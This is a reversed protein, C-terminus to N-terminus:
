GSPTPAVTRREIPEAWSRFRVSGGRQTGSCRLASVMIAHQTQYHAGEQHKVLHYIEEATMRGNGPGRGSHSVRVESKKGRGQWLDAEPVFFRSEV